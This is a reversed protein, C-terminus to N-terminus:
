YEGTAPSYLGFHIFMGFRDHLFWQMREDYQARDFHYM